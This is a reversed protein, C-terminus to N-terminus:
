RRGGSRSCFIMAALLLGRRRLAAILNNRGVGSM